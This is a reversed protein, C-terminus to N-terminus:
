VMAALHIARGGLGCQQWRVNGVGHRLGQMM